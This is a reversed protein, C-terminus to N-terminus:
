PILIGNFTAIAGESINLGGPRYNVNNSNGGTQVPVNPAGPDIVLKVSQIDSFNITNDSWNDANYFDHDVSGLWNATTQSFSFPMLGLCMIIFAYSCLKTYYFGLNM